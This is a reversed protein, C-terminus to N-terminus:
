PTFHKKFELFSWKIYPTQNLDEKHPHILVWHNEDDIGGNAILNPIIAKQAALQARATDSLKSLDTSPTHLPIIQATVTQGRSTQGFCTGM